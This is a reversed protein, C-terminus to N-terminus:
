RKYMKIIKYSEFGSYFRGYHSRGVADRSLDVEPDFTVIVQELVDCNREGHYDRVLFM